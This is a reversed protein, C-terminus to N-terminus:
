EKFTEYCVMEELTKRTKEVEKRDSLLVHLLFPHETVLEKCFDKNWTEVTVALGGSIGSEKLIADCEPEVALSSFVSFLVIVTILPIGKNM